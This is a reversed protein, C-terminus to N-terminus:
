ENEENIINENQINNQRELAFEEFLPNDMHLTLERGCFACYKAEEDFITRECHNCHYAGLFYKEQNIYEEVVNFIYGLVLAIGFGILIGLWIM